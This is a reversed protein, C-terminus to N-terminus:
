MDDDVENDLMGDAEENANTEQESQWLTLNDRLLQMILTSDKYKNDHLSDLNQIADDFAEKALKCASKSDEEVEYYFVSLNLMLGLRTTDCKPLSEIAKNKAEEYAERAAKKANFRPEGDNNGKLYEARYRNYDGKMKLYTIKHEAAEVNAPDSDDIKKVFDDIYGLVKKCWEELEGEIKNMMDPCYEEYESATSHANVTRWQQRRAGIVNKFAVSLYNRGDTDLSGVNQAPKNPDGPASIAEVLFECMDEYRECQEALRAKALAIDYETKNNPAKDNSAAGAM